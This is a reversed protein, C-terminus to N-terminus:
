KKHAVLVLQRYPIRVLDERVEVYIEHFGVSTFLELYREVTRIYAGRDFEMFFNRIDRSSNMTSVPELAIFKGHSRLIRKIAFLSDIVQEDTLHHLVGWSICATFANEPFESLDSSDGIMFKHEPNRNRAKRICGEIPDLGVYSKADFYKALAGTGCGFDLVPSLEKVLLESKLERAKKTTVVFQFVDYIFSFDFIFEIFKHFSNRTKM